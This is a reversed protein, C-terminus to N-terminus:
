ERTATTTNWKGALPALAASWSIRQDDGEVWNWEPFPWEQWMQKSVWVEGGASCTQLVRAAFEDRWTQVRPAAVEVVDYIPLPNLRNIADFPSRNCGSASPFSLLGNGHGLILLSSAM